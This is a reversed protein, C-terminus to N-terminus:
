NGHVFINSIHLNLLTGPILIKFWDDMNFVSSDGTSNRNRSKKEQQQQQQLCNITTEICVIDIIHDKFINSDKINGTDNNKTSNNDATSNNSNNNIDDSSSFFRTSGSTNNYLSQQQKMSNIKKDNRNMNM